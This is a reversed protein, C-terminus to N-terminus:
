LFELIFPVLVPVLVTLVIGSFIAVIAYERGTAKVIVPLTTDMATAGASVIAGLKGFYKVMFPAAVLTTVERFINALLAIVGMEEGSLQGIFISSLSYYGFGAGVAVANVLSVKHLLLSFLASGGLSGIVVILPVLLVRFRIHRLVSLARQDGGIGIGVLMMLLYLILTTFRDSGFVAPIMQHLAGLVGLAFFLLIWFSQNSFIKLLHTKTRKTELKSTPPHATPTPEDSQLQSHNKQFFNTALWALILSGLMAGTGLCFAQWGLGPFNRVVQPNSGVSVGLAFLLAFIVLSILRDTITFVATQKRILYGLPIGAAFLGIVTFSIM